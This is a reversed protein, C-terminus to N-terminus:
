LGGGLGSGIDFHMPSALLLFCPTLLPVGFAFNETTFEFAERKKRRAEQNKGRVELRM